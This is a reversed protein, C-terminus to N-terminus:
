EDQFLSPQDKSEAKVRGLPEPIRGQSLGILVWSAWQRLSNGVRMESSVSWNCKFKRSIYNGISKGDATPHKKLYDIVLQIRQENCAANWLIELPSRSEFETLEIISYSGLENKVVGLGRLAAVGNRFGKEKIEKVSLPQNSRLYDLAELTKIPSTDGIFVAIGGSRRGKRGKRTKNVNELNVKGQDKFKWDDGVQILYGTVSLWYGMREAYVKWTKEQHQATPNIQKLLNIIYPTTIIEGPEQSSLRMTLAHNRLVHRLRQLIEEQDSTEMSSALKIKSNEVTAIGFMKLDRVVNVITKESLGLLDGLAAFSQDEEPNLQGGVRLMARISSGPLYSLAISPVTRTLVYERFIDWYVNLRDGSRIILRKHQLAGLVEQDSVELIKYWDAPASEAIMKLCTNEASTLQQLDRDFLSEVDLDKDVLESQSIGSKVTDYVHICLKKLLWPYGQNNETLQRRLDSRLKEGLEKQFISIAKSAESSTFRGLEVEMRHDALRHWMYYAPHDQQVTSDTKWAFGLVLNSQAAVSSLFLNQAAEFVAFVEPKSYLEEFQDFVLCIVQGKHELQTLFEQISPSELPDTSNTIRLNEPNGTGFGLQAAKRLCALVSRLTYGAGTAARVDVAYIFFKRRYRQNQVRSRLKAILSSKGMGSDGKIAFVRTASKKERVDELFHIIQEQVEKRGVFDEPRAPRYDTWTEGHVVEVVSNLSSETRSKSLNLVYEFDLDNQSTDTQALNRLLAQEDVINGTKAYYVLVGVPVGGELCAITWFVGYETILLMPDGVRDENGIIKFASDRPPHEVMKASILADIVRDPTYISLKQSEEDPRNEWDHQFGKADKGLPGTSILWGEQYKQSQITGLLKILVEASIPNRHAKCEVYVTRRNVQHQCLLDIESGVLRLQKTTKYHQIRLLDEALSELLDGKEKRNPSGSPAAVEIHAKYEM